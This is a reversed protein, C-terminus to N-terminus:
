FFAGKNLTDGEEERHGQGCSLRDPLFCGPWAKKGLSRLPFCPVPYCGLEWLLSWTRGEGRRAEGGSGM